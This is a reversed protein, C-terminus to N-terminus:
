SESPKLQHKVSAEVDYTYQSASSRYERKSMPSESRPSDMSTRVQRHSDHRQLAINPMTARRLKEQQSLLNTECMAVNGHRYVQPKLQKRPVSPQRTPKSSTPALMSSDSSRPKVVKPQTDGLKIMSAALKKFDSAGPANVKQLYKIVVVVLRQIDQMLKGEQKLDLGQYLLSLGCLTLMENKNLCFSFSM